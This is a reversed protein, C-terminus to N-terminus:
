ADICAPLDGSRLIADRILAMAEGLAAFQEPSMTDVINRRVSDVHVRAMAEVATVGEETLVLEVGRRDALCSERRVWGRRELRTATHTLRSRSQVVLDALGSMRLRRNPAESLM